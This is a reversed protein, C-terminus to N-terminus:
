LSYGVGFTLPLGALAEFDGSGNWFGFGEFGIGAELHVRSAPRWRMRLDLALSQFFGFDLGGDPWPPAGPYPLPATVDTENSVWALHLGARRAGAQVQAGFEPVWQIPAAEPPQRMRRLKFDLALALPPRLRGGKGQYAQLWTRRFSGPRLTHADRYRLGAAAAHLARDEVRHFAFELRPLSVELTDGARLEVVAWPESLSQNFLTYTGPPCGEFRIRSAGRDLVTM